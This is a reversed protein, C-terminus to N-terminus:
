QVLETREQERIVGIMLLQKQSNEDLELVGVTLEQTRKLPHGVFVTQASSYKFDHSGLHAREAKNIMYRSEVGLM